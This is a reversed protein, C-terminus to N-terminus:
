LAHPSADLEGLTGRLATKEATTHSLGDKRLVKDTDERLSELVM